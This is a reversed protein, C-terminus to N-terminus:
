LDSIKVLQKGVNEGRLMGLFAAVANEIGGAVTERYKLKGERLWQALHPFAEGFRSAYQFVLFGQVKLTRVLVLPLLRPGTEPKELNYLAIQGCIAVRGGTNMLPFVADTISGGVNDFYCDIGAPCLEKLREFHSTETKYNFAADFGLDETIWRIKDDGGAIGVVRCGHIKAIQGVASGVAGAAGSVVVTEGARPACVDLLGFYATLGPMGLVGLSTSIPATRPDVKMVGRGDSIAYQQWGFMGVVYEGEAFGPHRSALVKGVAGGGMVEDLKQPDAYSRAANMRGRMYPDVSLYSVGVLFEGAAPEPMPSEVLRFDTPNPFGTPRAALQIQKNTATM